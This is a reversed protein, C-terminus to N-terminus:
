KKPITVEVGPVKPAQKPAPATKPLAVPNAPPSKAPAALLSNFMQDGKGKFAGNKDFLYYHKTGKVEVVAGYIVEGKEEIKGARTISGGPINKAIYDTAGKPLQSPKIEATKVNQAYIVASLILAIFLFTTKKM